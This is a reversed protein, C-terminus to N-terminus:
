MGTESLGDHESQEDPKDNAYTQKLEAFDEEFQASMQLTM